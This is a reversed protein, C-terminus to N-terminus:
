ADHRMQDKDLCRGIYDFIEFWQSTISHVLIQSLFDKLPSLQFFFLVITTRIAHSM